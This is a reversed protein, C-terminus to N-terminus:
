GGLDNGSGFARGIESRPNALLSSTLTGNTLVFTANSVVLGSCLVDLPAYHYGLRYFDLPGSAPGILDTHVRPGIITNAEILGNLVTPPETTLAYLETALSPDDENFTVTFQNLPSDVPLYHSGGGATAFISSSPASSQYCTTFAVNSTYTVGVIISNTLGLQAPYTTYNLYNASDVTLNEGAIPTGPSTNWVVFY